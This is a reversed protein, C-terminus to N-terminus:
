SKPEQIHGYSKVPNFFTHYQAFFYTVFAWATGIMISIQIAGNPYTLAGLKVGAFYSLPAGIFGFFLSLIPRKKLWALSHNFTMAFAVWLLLIWVPAVMDAGPFPASFRIYGLMQWVSDLVFGIILAFAIFKFDDPHRHKPSLQWIAFLIVLICAPWITNNSAGIVAVFWIVQLAIFNIFTTM